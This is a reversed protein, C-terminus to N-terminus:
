LNKVFNLVCPPLPPVPACGESIPRYRLTRARPPAHQALMQKPPRARGHFSTRLRRIPLEAVASLLKSKSARKDSVSTVVPPFRLPLSAGGQPWRFLVVPFRLAAALKSRPALSGRVVGVAARPRAPHPKTAALVSRFRRRPRCPFAAAVRACRPSRRCFLPGLKAASKGGGAPM